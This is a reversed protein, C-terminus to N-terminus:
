LRAIFGIFFDRSLEYVCLFCGFYMLVTVFNEGKGGTKIKAFRVKKSSFPALMKCGSPTCADLFLHSIVGVYISTFVLAFMPFYYMPIGLVFLWLVLTHTPGRHPCFKTVIWSIVPIKKSIKSNPHDIDPLLGGLTGGAVCIGVDILSVDKMVNALLLGALAGGPIHTYGMM